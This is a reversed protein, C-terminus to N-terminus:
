AGQVSKAPQVGGTAPAPAPAPAPAVAPAVVAAVAPAVSVSQAVPDAGTAAPVAETPQPVGSTTSTGSAAAVPADAPPATRVDTAEMQHRRYEEVALRSPYQEVTKGSESDRVVLLALGTETDVRIVPSIFAPPSTMAQAEEAAASDQQAAHPPAVSGASDPVTPTLSMTTSVSTSM